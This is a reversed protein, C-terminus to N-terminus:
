EGGVGSTVLDRSNLRGANAGERLDDCGATLGRPSDVTVYSGGDFEVGMGRLSEVSSICIAASDQRWLMCIAGRGGSTEDGCIGSYVPSFEVKM